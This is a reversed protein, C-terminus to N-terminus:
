VAQTLVEISLLIHPIRGCEMPLPGREFSLGGCDHLEFTCLVPGALM